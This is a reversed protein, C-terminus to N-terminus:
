DEGKEGESTAEGSKLRYRNLSIEIISIAKALCGSYVAVKV